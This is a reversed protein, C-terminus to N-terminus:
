SHAGEALGASEWLGDLGGMPSELVRRAIHAARVAQTEDLYSAPSKGSVRALMIAAAHRAVSDPEVRGANAEEYGFLFATTTLRLLAAHAPAHVAKLALHAVLFALDFVAAGVHAVEADIVWLGSDGVLVNKPSYDGHVICQRASALEDILPEVLEAPAARRRVIERHFPDLRLDDFADPRAFSARVAPSDWTAAHWRGLVLGATRGRAIDAEGPGALLISRWDRWHAPACRLALIHAEPDAALLTPVHEPTISHLLRLAEAETESRGPDAHWESAVRLKPLAQKLVVPPEGELMVVTSSVGGALLRASGPEVNLGITLAYDSATDPALVYASARRMPSM